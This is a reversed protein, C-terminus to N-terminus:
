WYLISSYCYMLLITLLLCVINWGRGATLSDPWVSVNFVCGCLWVCMVCICHNWWLWIDISFLYKLYWHKMVGYQMLWWWSYDHNSFILMTEENRRIIAFVASHIRMLRWWYHVPERWWWWFLSVYYCHWWLVRVSCFLYICQILQDDSIFIMMVTDSDLSPIDDPISLLDDDGETMLLICTFPLYDCMLMLLWWIDRTILPINVDSISYKWPKM